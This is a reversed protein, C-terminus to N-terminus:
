LQYPLENKNERVKELYKKVLESPDSKPNTWDARSPHTAIVIYHEENSKFVKSKWKRKNQEEFEDVLKNANLKDCVFKGSSNGFCLILKIGLEVIVKQHFNWCLDNYYNLKQAIKQEVTSRVFCVNSAPVEYPSLNVKELLHLVRPQLGSKGAVGEWIEDKYESWEDKELNLTKQTHRLITNEKKLIESGGPNLGIIYLDKDGKFAKRGSYFVSGSLNHLEKPILEAFEKM